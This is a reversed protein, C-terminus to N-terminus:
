IASTQKQSKWMRVRDELRQVTDYAATIHQQAYAWLPSFEQSPDRPRFQDITKQLMLWYRFATDYENEAEARKIADLKEAERRKKLQNAALSQEYKSLKRRILGLQFDGNLRVMAQDCNIGFLVMVLDIATGGACCQFCYWGRDGDYVKLSPRHDSHLPCKAWGQRDVELGYKGAVDRATVRRKIEDAVSSM